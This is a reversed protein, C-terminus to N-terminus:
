PVLGQERRLQMRIREEIGHDSIRNVGYQVAGAYTYGVEYVVNDNGIFIAGDNVGTLTGLVVGRVTVRGEYPLFPAAFNGTAYWYEMSGNGAIIVQDGVTLMDLINDPNSEKEFFNLPDIVTTGPLLYYCKQTNGVSALVNSSVNALAQITEGPGTGSVLVLATGGGGALTGGGWSIFSGSSTTTISNGTSDAAIATLILVLPLFQTAVATVVANPASVEASYDLGSIGTFNLLFAMASLSSTDGTLGSGDPVASGLRALYPSTSTGAPTNFEVNASWAYFVGNIDIKQGGSAFDTISGGALTLTGTARTSFYWFNTGDAIFLYEYGLGKMWTVNPNGTGAITGTIHTATTGDWRWLNPGAIVFLDGNFAGSKSYNARITGGLFKSLAQTGPRGILAVHERLNTVTKEVFRNVLRVEPEAAGVRKYAGIGLPLTTM